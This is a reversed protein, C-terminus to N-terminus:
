TANQLIEKVFFFLWFLFPLAIILLGIKTNYTFALGRYLWSFYGSSKQDEKSDKQDDM